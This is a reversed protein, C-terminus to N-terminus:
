AKFNQPLLNDLQNLKTDSIHDLVYVLWDHPNIAHKKCTGLFSYMQAARKAGKSSGAFLYNKKGLAVPRISNEVGNNDIELKGDYLYAMLQDWRPVCYAMAQGIASKPLVTKYTTAIWKGLENM